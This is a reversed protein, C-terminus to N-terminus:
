LWWFLITSAYFCLFLCTSCFKTSLFLDLCIHDILIQCSFWSFSISFFVTKEVLLAPIISYECTSSHFWLSKGSHETTLVSQKWHLPLGFVHFSLFLLFQVQVVSWEYLHVWFLSIIYINLASILFFCFFVYSSIGQCLDQYYKKQIHCRCWLCCFIKVFSCWVLFNRYM